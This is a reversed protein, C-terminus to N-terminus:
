LEEIEKIAQELHENVIEILDAKLDKPMPLCVDDSRWASVFGICNPENDFIQKIAKLEEYKSLLKPANRLNELKM